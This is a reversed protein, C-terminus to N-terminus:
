LVDAFGRKMHRFFLGGIMFTVVAFLTMVALEEVGPLQESLLLERYARVLYALPNAALLFRVRAPFQQETIFIPTLWFWFTLIVTLVQATDRLYVQLSALIWGLGVAFLGVLLMYFPLLALGASIQNLWIGVAAVALGLAILHSMLSSLFISVPVMEAPFVTKTILSAQEVLSSASRQVTESFLLWPLMGAFLFLPYNGTVEGAPMKQHLCVSFVFTWSALLVLPHIVGWIWGVASGVFRQEFDRRVLQFLLSRREVLNQLFLVGPIRFSQAM